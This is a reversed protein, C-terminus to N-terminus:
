QTTFVRDIPVGGRIVQVTFTARGDTLAHTIDDLSANNAPSGDVAAILDGEHFDAQAFLSQAALAGLKLVPGGYLNDAVFTPLTLDTARAAAPDLAWRNRGLPQAVIDLKHRIVRLEMDTGLALVIDGKASHLTVTKDDIRTVNMGRGLPDGESFSRTIWSHSDAIIASKAVQGQAEGLEVGFLRYPGETAVYSSPDVVGTGERPSIVEDPSVPAVPAANPDDAKRNAVSDNKALPQTTPNSTCAALFATSIAMALGLRITKNMVSFRRTRLACYVNTRTGQAM